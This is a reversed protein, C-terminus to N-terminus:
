GRKPAGSWNLPGLFLNPISGLFTPLTLRTTNAMEVVSLAFPPFPSHLMMRQRSKPFAFNWLIVTRQVWEKLCVPGKHLGYLLM